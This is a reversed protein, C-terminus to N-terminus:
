VRGLLVRELKIGAPQFISNSDHFYNFVRTVKQVKSRIIRRRANKKSDHHPLEHPPNKPKQSKKLRKEYHREGREKEGRSKAKKEDTQMKM